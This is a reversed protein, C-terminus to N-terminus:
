KGQLLLFSELNISLYFRQTIIMCIIKTVLHRVTYVDGQKSIVQYTGHKPFSTKDPKKTEYEALVCSNIPFNTEKDIQRRAIKLRDDEIQNQRAINLLRQWLSLMIKIRDEHKYEMSNDKPSTLFHVDHDISNGFIMQSPSVELVATTCAGSKLYAKKQSKLKKKTHHHSLSHTLLCGEFNLMKLLPSLAKLTNYFNSVTTTLFWLHTYSQRWWWWWWLTRM